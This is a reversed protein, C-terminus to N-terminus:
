EDASKITQLYHIIQQFIYAPEAKEDVRIVMDYLSSDQAGIKFGAQAYMAVYQLPIIPTTTLDVLLDFKRRSLDARAEQNPKDLWTVDKIGLIRSEPLNPSLLDRKHCYGWVVVQKDEEHLEEVLHKIDANRENWESEYLLLVSSVKAYDPFSSMRKPQRSLLYNFITQKINM